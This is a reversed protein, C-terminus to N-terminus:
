ESSNVPGQAPKMPTANTKPAKVEGKIRITSTGGIVKGESDKKARTINDSNMANSQITVSKNIVGVRKTDYRVRIEGTSGPAIEERPWQPVTCGCSGKANSIKLPQNGTNTFVFVCEGNASKEIQGYDHTSKDFSIEAGQTLAIAQQAVFSNITLFTAILFSLQLISKKM